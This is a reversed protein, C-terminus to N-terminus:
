DEAGFVATSAVGLGGVALFGLALGTAETRVAVAEMTPSLIRGGNGELLGSGRRSLSLNRVRSSRRSSSPNRKAPSVAAARSRSRSRTSGVSARRQRGARSPRGYDDEEEDATDAFRYLASATRRRAEEKASSFVDRAKALPQSVAIEDYIEETADGIRNAALEVVAQTEDLWPFIGCKAMKRPDTNAVVTWVCLSFGSLLVDYVLASVWYNWLRLGHIINEITQGLNDLYTNSGGLGVMDLAPQYLNKHKGSRTDEMAMYWSHLHLVFSTVSFTFWVFVM